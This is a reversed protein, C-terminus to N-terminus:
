SVFDDINTEIVRDFAGGIVRQVSSRGCSRAYTKGMTTRASSRELARTAVVLAKMRTLWRWRERHVVGRRGRLPLSRVVRHFYM